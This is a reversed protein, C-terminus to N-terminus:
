CCYSAKATRDVYTHENKKDEITVPWPQMPARWRRRIRSLFGHYIKKQAPALARVHSNFHDYCSFDLGRVGM